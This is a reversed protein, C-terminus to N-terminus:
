YGRPSIAEPMAQNKIPMDIANDLGSSILHVAM